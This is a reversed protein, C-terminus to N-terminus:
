AADDDVTISVYGGTEPAHCITVRQAPAGVKGAAAPAVSGEEGAYQQGQAAARGPGIPGFMLVILTSALLVFAKGARVNGCSLLGPLSM